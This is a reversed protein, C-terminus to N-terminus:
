SITYKNDVTIRRLTRVGRQPGLSPYKHDNFWTHAQKMAYLSRYRDDSASRVIDDCESKSM